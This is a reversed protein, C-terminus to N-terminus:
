EMVPLYVKNGWQAPSRGNPTLGWIVPVRPRRKPAPGYGDTFYVVVDPRVDGLLEPEFPPCLNTGGRGQVSRLPGHYPYVAHVTADCEVVTVDHNRAMHGLEGSIRELINTTISGSTDIVVMVRLRIPQHIRSPVIGVLNPFRRPPRTFSPRVETAERVYRRLIRQWNLQGTQKPFIQESCVGPAQGQCIMSLRKRIARPLPALEDSSLNAVVERICVRVAMEGVQGAAKASDWVNHDDLAMFLIQAANQTLSHAEDVFFIDGHHLEMLIRCIDVPKTEEGAFLSHLTTGYETAIARALSTKGSGTPATLLLSPCPRGLEIAGSVLRKLYSVIRSQGIFDNFDKPPRAM